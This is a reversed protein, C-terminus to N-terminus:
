KVRVIIDQWRKILTPYAKGAWEMDYAVVKIADLAPFGAPPAVDTRASRLEFKQALLDMVEKSVVFDMFARAARPHKAGKLIANGDPPVSTGDQPYVVGVPAGGKVQRMAADEYTLGAQYEGDAVGKPVRSSSPLIKANRMVDEVVKWGTDDDGFVTLLTALITYSSGSKDAAAYAIKDKWRADALSRWAKPAEAESLLKRNYVIVMPTVNNPTIRGGALGKKYIAAIKGDDAVTYPELLDANAAMGEAGLAWLVDGLPNAAEARARKLIEGTGAEVFRAKIGTRQEFLPGIAQVITSQAATYVVVEGESSQAAAVAAGCSASVVLAGVLSRLGSRKRTTRV